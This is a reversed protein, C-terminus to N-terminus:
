SGKARKSWYLGERAYFFDLAASAGEGYAVAIRQFAKHSVDGAPYISESRSEVLLKKPLLFGDEDHLLINRFPESAPMKGLNKVLIDCEICVAKGDLGQAVIVTRSEKRISTIRSTQIVPFEISRLYDKIVYWKDPLTLLSVHLGSLVQQRNEVLGLIERDCGVIVIEQQSSLTGLPTDYLNYDGATEVGEILPHDSLQMPRSGTAAIVADATIKMVGDCNVCYRSGLRSIQTVTASIVDIGCKKIQRDLDSALETGKFPGGPLNTIDDIWWLQGGVRHKEVIVARIGVSQATVAAACGAPGGGIIAMECDVNTM